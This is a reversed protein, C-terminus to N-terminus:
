LLALCFALVHGVRVCQQDLDVVAIALCEHLIAAELYAAGLIPAPCARAGRIALEFQGLARTTDHMAQLVRGFRYRAVDGYRERLSCWRVLPDASYGRILQWLTVPEPGDAERAAEFQERTANM